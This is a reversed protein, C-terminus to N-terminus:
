EQAWAQVSQWAELEAEDETGWPKAEYAAREQAELMAKDPVNLAQRLAQNIQDKLTGGGRARALVMAEYVDGDIWVTTQKPSSNRMQVDCRRTTKNNQQGSRM